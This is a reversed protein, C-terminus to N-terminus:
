DALDRAPQVYPPLVAVLRDPQDTIWDPLPLDAALVQELLIGQAAAGAQIKGLKGFFGLERAQQALLELRPIREEERAAWAEVWGIDLALAADNFHGEADRIRDIVRRAKDSAGQSLLAEAALLRARATARVQGRDVFQDAIAEAEIRVRWPDAGTLLDIRLLDVQSIFQWSPRNAQPRLELARKFAQRASTLDGSWLNLRGMAAHVGAQLFPSSEEGLEELQVLLWEAKFLDGALIRQEARFSGVHLLRDTQGSREYLTWAEELLGEADDLRGQRSAILALNFATRAQHGPLDLKRFLELARENLEISRENLGRTSAAAALNGLSTAMGRRDGISEFTELAQSWLAEAEDMRERRAMLLGANVQLGAARHARSSDRAIRFASDFAEAAEDVAGSEIAALGRANFWAIKLDPDATTEIRPAMDKLRALTQEADGRLYRVLALEIEGKLSLLDDIELAEFQEALELAKELNGGERVLALRTLLLRAQHHDTLTSRNTELMEGILREARGLEGQARIMESLQLTSEVALDMHDRGLATDRATEALEEAQQHKGDLALLRANLLLWRANQGLEPETGLLALTQRASNGQLADLEAEALDLRLEQDDPLLLSLARLGAAAEIAHHRARAVETQRRLSGILASHADHVETTPHENPPLTREPGFLAWTGIGVLLAAVMVTVGRALWRHGSRRISPTSERTVPCVIRYGRRHSTEIYRPHRADDDLAQRLQNIAQPLVNPSLATRGWVRELLQEREVIAPASDLLERLLRFPLRQLTISGNPGSLEATDCDLRYDGFSFKM